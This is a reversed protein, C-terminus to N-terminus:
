WDLDLQDDLVVSTEDLSTLDIQAKVATSFLSDEMVASAIKLKTAINQTDGFHLLYQGDCVMRLTHSETLDIATIRETLASSLVTSVIERIMRANRENAFTLVRGAIAEEVAPLCLRILGQESAYEESIRDLVRLTPSIARLEGYIYACFVAEDESVTFHVTDPAERDVALSRVYPHRLTVRDQVIRSSFSYLNAGESVGTAKLITEPAYLSTGTLTIDDIVYFLKYVLLLAGILFVCAILGAAGIRRLRVLLKRRVARRYAEVRESDSMTDERLVDEIRRPVEKEAAEGYARKRRDAFPPAEKAATRAGSQAATHPKVRSMDAASSTDARPPSTGARPAGQVTSKKGARAMSDRVRYPNSSRTSTQAEATPGRAPASSRKKGIPVADATDDWVRALRDPAKSYRQARDRVSNRAISEVRDM